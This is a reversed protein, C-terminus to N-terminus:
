TPSSESITFSGGAQIDKLALQYIYTSVPIRLAKARAKVREHLKKDAYMSVVIKGPGIHKTNSKKM